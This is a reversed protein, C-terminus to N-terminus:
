KKKAAQDPPPLKVNTFRYTVLKCTSTLLIEGSDQEPNETKINNVTVIRELKSVADLFVGLNHYPGKIKIDIPIEAYFDKPIEAGPVFSLFDLGANKGRDSINRLLNPIEQSKPLLASTSEFETQTKELEQQHKPLDRASKRIKKLEENSNQVQLEIKKISETNPKYIFFYFIGIPVFLLAILAYVKKKLEIPIFKEDIFIEYKTKKSGSRM